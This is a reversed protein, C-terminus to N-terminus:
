RRRPPHAAQREGGRHKILSGGRAMGERVDEKETGDSDVIMYVTRGKWEIHELAPLLTEKGKAKWGYVGVLGLCPLGAQNSAAAKFEGETIAIEPSANPLHDVVGPPIYLENPQERPSEYKIPKKTTVNMRPRDPRLRCYGNRGDADTFPIALAAAHLGKPLKKVNLLRAMKDDDTVSYYGAAAITADTM